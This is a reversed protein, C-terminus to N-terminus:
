TLRYESLSCSRRIEDRDSKFRCLRLSKPNPRLPTMGALVLCPLFILDTGIWFHSYLLCEINWHCRSCDSNTSLIDGPLLQDLSRWVCRVRASAYSCKFPLPCCTKSIKLTKWALFTCVYFLMKVTFWCPLRVQYIVHTQTYESQSNVFFLGPTSPWSLPPLQYTPLLTCICQM